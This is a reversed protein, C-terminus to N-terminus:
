RGGGGEPGNWVRRREKQEEVEPVKGTADCRARAPRTSGHRHHIQVPEEARRQREGREERSLELFRETKEM